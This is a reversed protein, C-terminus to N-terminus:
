ARRACRGRWGGWAPTEPVVGFHPVPVGRGDVPNVHANVRGRAVLVPDLHRVRQRGVLDFDVWKGDSRAEACGPVGGRAEAFERVPIDLHLPKRM